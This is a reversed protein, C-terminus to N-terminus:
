KMRWFSLGAVLYFNTGLQPVGVSGVGSVSSVDGVGAIGAMEDVGGMGSVGSNSGVGAEVAVGTM